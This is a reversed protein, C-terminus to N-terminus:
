KNAFDWLAVLNRLSPNRITGAKYYQVWRRSLGTAAAIEDAGPAQKSNIWRRLQKEFKAISM